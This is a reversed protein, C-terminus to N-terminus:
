NKPGNKEVFDEMVPRTMRFAHWGEEVTINIGGRRKYLEVSPTNWDLVSWQLRKCDKSLAIKTVEVWLATGIGKGRWEPTVYLDEMYCARGEWTSYIYFFLVYGILQGGEGSGDPTVPEAVLCDFYKEKGFGDRKLVDASIKVQEPMKEYEALEKILRMIEECDEEKAQRLIFNAM